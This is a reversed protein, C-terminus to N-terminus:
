YRSNWSFDLLVRDGNFTIHLRYKSKPLDSKGFTIIREELNEEELIWGNREAEKIYYARLNEHSRYIKESSKYSDHCASLFAAREGKIIPPSPTTLRSGPPMQFNQLEQQIVVLAEKPIPGMTVPQNAHDLLLVVALVLIAVVIYTVVDIIKKVWKSALLM